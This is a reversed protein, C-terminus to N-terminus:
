RGSGPGARSRASAAAGTWTGRTAAFYPDDTADVGAAMGKSERAKAPQNVSPERKKEHVVVQPEAVHNHHVRLAILKTESGDRYPLLALM